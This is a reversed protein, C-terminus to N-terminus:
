YDNDNYKVVGQKDFKKTEQPQIFFLTLIAFSFIVICFLLLVGNSM